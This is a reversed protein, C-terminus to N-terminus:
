APCKRVRRMIAGFLVEPKADLARALWLFEVLDLRREGQEIKAIVSQPWGCGSAVAAQTLGRRKREERLALRVAEGEASFLSKESFNGM